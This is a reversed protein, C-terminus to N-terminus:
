PVVWLEWECMDPGVLSETSLAYGAIHTALDVSHFRGYTGMHAAAHSSNLNDDVPTTRSLGFASDM